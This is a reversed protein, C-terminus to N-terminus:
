RTTIARYGAPTMGTYKKFIRYFYNPDPYGVKKGIDYSSTNKDLMNIKAWEIRYKNLYDSFFEGTTEKFVQGLYSPTINLEAALTKLSIGESYKLEIYKLAKNVIPNIDENVKTIRSISKNLLCLLFSRIEELNQIEFVAPINVEEEPLRIGEPLLKNACTIIKLATIAAAERVAHSKMGSNEMGCIVKNIIHELKSSDKLAFAKELDYLLFTNGSNFLSSKNSPIDTLVKKGPYALSYEMLEEALKYSDSLGTFDSALSGCSARFPIGYTELLSSVISELKSCVTDKDMSQDYLILAITSKSEWFAYIGPLDALSSILAEPNIHAFDTVTLPKILAACYYTWDLGIGIIDARESLEEHAIEGKLWRLLINHKIINIDRLVNDRRNDKALKNVTSVITAEFEEKSVPKIIYNEIGLKIGEKLYEFDDYGSLVISKLKSESKNLINILELGTIGPMRVDTILIDPNTLTIKELASEASYAWGCIEIGYEEWSIIAKLGEIILPEDDVIFVKFM